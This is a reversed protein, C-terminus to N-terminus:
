RESRRRRMGRSRPVTGSSTFQRNLLKGVRRADDAINRLGGRTDYNHGVFYLDPQDSSVVRHHRAAFGCDDVHVQDRLFGLAARYGTALIVRDFRQESGDTFRVSGTTFEAIGPTLQIAGSRIADVLHFGILPVAACPGPTGRPLVQPRVRSAISSTANNIARQVAKPLVGIAVGFYQIPLGLLERPVVRAGSRVAVAVRAGANALEVSIEGASNGAGVVLIREGAYPQPRRYHISHMVSGTFQSQGPIAPAYPNSVIGTAVVLARSRIEECDAARVRWGAPVREVGAVESRMKVPVRFTDAYHALYDLFDRRTPFVPTSRPFPMGPLASFLKGTHLVLGDYLNEWTHAITAGRELVVHNVGRRSLERSTALGAPGAGIIIVDLTNL